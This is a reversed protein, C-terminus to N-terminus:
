ALMIPRAFSHFRDLVAGNAGARVAGIELTEMAEATISGDESCTAELDVVLVPATM